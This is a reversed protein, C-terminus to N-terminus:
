REQKRDHAWQGDLCRYTAYGRQGSKPKHEVEISHGESNVSLSVLVADPYLIRLMEALEEVSHTHTVNTM